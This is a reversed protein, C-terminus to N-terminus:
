KEILIRIINFLAYLPGPIFFLVFFLINPNEAVTQELVAERPDKPNYYVTVTKGKQYEAARKKAWDKTAGTTGFDIRQGTYSEGGIKYKYKVDPKYFIGTASEGAHATGQKLRCHVVEGDVSLWKLSARAKSEALVEIFIPIGAIATWLLGFLVGFGPDGM